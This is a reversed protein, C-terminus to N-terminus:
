LGRQTIADQIAEWVQPNAWYANHAHPFPQGGTVPVDRVRGQFVDAAQFSLLDNPDYLNLWPPLHAPLARPPDGQLKLTTLAGLEYLMPAQSGVTILLPVQAAITPNDVLLELCAIGGLSHALLITGGTIQEAIARRIQAGGRESQYVLIDGLFRLLPRTIAARNPRLVGLTAIQAGIWGLADLPGGLTEIGALATDVADVLHDRLRADIFPPPYAGAARAQALMRAVIARALIRRYAEPQTDDITLLLQQIAPQSGDAFLDGAWLCAPAFQDPEHLAAVELPTVLEPPTPSDACAFIKQALDLSTDTQEIGAAPQTGAALLRLEALPDRYLLEWLAIQGTAQAAADEMTGSLVEAEAPVEAWGPIARFVRALRAGYHEGWPYKDVVIDARWGTLATTIRDFSELYDADYRTMTGHIFLVRPM